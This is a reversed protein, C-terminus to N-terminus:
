RGMYKSKSVGPPILWFVKHRDLYTSYEPPIVYTTAPAEIIAPGEIVNGPKVLDMELLDAELWKGEWYMERKGKYASEEPEEKELEFEPLKPKITPYVGVMIARTVEYGLEPSKAGRVYIREFVEDFRKCLENVGEPTIPFSPSEVEFDDLMGWYRIRAMPKFYAREPDLGEAKMEEIVEGRLKEWEGNLTTAAFGRLEEPGVPLEPTPGVKLLDFFRWGPLVIETSIDRRIGFDAMAAGFASFAAAWSPVMIGQFSLGKCYKAVLVPGGGGYSLLHFNEPSFGLGVIAARLYERMELCIYDVVGQAADYVDIGLPKAIQEKLADIARKKNLKVKGGLFYETNLYGLAVCADNVTVTDVGGDERSVGIRYGASDPGVKLAQTVPDIRAYSGTGAGISNVAIMPINVIFRHISTEPLIPYEGGVVLGVDFSTGGVDTGVLYDIGYTKGLFKTGILGGTPGSTLTMILREHEPSVTTGYSTLLRISARSGLSRFKDRLMRLQARSPEAAYVQLVVSNLRGTEGLVPNIKHSLVIPVETGRKRMVEKAIEYVKLEHEPNAFSYLLCVIIAKVGKDLLFETAEEVDKEYLPIMVWGSRLIRERVGRVYERPIIPEPFMHSASHIRESYPYEVWAQRGRGFRLVDEFGATTIVGLPSLGERGVIRNLMITGTYVVTKLQSVAEELSIEWQGEEIADSLSNLIGISENEPTTLAKGVAFNGDKDVIFADTMTGGTDIAFVEPFRKAMLDGRNALIRLVGKGM